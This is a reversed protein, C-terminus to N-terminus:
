KRRVLEALQTVIKDTVANATDMKYKERNDMESIVYYNRYETVARKETQMLVKKDSNIIEVRYYTTGGSVWPAPNPLICGFILLSCGWILTSPMTDVWWGPIIAGRVLVENAHLSSSSLADMATADVGKDRLMQAIQGSMDHVYVSELTQQIQQSQTVSIMHTSWLFNSVVVRKGRISKLPQPLVVDSRWTPGISCGSFLASVVFLIIGTKLKMGRDEQTLYAAKGALLSVNKLSV